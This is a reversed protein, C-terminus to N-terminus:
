AQLWRYAQKRTMLGSEWLRNFAAHAMVRQRRLDANALTGMPLHSGKHAAVYSNCAPFRGCVYLQANTASAKKGYVVTAPRLYAQSGCYPCKINVRKM